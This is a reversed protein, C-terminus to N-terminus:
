RPQPVEARVGQHGRHLFHLCGGGTRYVRVDAVLDLVYYDLFLKHLSEDSMTRQSRQERWSRRYDFAREIPRLISTERACTM